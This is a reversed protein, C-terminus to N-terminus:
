LAYRREFDRSMSSYIIKELEPSVEVPMSSLEIVPALIRVTQVAQPTPSYSYPPVAGSAGVSAYALASAASIVLAPEMSM